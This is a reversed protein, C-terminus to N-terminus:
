ARRLHAARIRLRAELWLAHLWAPLFRFLAPSMRLATALRLTKVNRVIQKLLPQPAYRRMTRIGSQQAKLYDPKGEIFQRQGAFAGL